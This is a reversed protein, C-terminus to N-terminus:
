IFFLSLAVTAVLVIAALLGPSRYWGDDAATRTDDENAMGHVLGQLEEVPRPETVFTVGVSVVADLLFAIIAGWFAEALDSGFDLVGGKYLLYTGLAGISGAVMGWLGAAPTMRKWYMGVIFTAFLPVNFVSFLVQIYNMINSYGSAILATAISIM